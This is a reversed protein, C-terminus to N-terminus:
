MDRRGTVDKLLDMIDDFGDQRVSQGMDETTLIPEYKKIEEDFDIM